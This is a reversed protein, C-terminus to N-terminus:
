NVCNFSYVTKHSYIKGKKLLAKNDTAYPFHETELCFGGRKVFGGGNKIFNGSYFQVCPQTTLVELSIGNEPSAAAAALRLGEAQELVFCHDYGGGFRLQENDENIREGILNAELFDFPTGTVSSIAGTSLVNEDIELYEAANIKLMHGAIEGSKAGSLNFYAHNTLNVLTDADSVAKYEIELANDENLTYCISLDLNGPFGAEDDPSIRRFVVSNKGLTFDYVKTNFSDVGGHLNNGANNRELQYDIGNINLRGGGIRGANRGIFAGFYYDGNEYESLSEYGLCVETSQGNKDPVTISQVICGYNLLSVEMGNNNELKIIYIKEGKKTEGFYKEGM